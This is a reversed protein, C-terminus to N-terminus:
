EADGRKPKQQPNYLANPNFGHKNPDEMDALYWYNINGDKNKKLLGHKLLRSCQKHCNQKSLGLAATLRAGSIAYQVEFARCGMLFDFVKRSADTSVWRSVKM